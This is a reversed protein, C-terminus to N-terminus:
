PAVVELLEPEPAVPPESRTLVATVALVVLALALEVRIARAVPRAQAQVQRRNVWGLALTGAVLLLKLALLQGYDSVVIAPLPAQAVRLLTSGGGTLLTVPALVTAVPSFLQWRPLAVEHPAHAPLDSWTLALAGLWGGVAAVHMGDLLRALRPWADDAAAHGIGGMAVAVAVATMLAGVARWWPYPIWVGLAAVASALALQGWGMGWSTGGVLEAADALSRDLAHLQAVLLLAPAVLLAVAGAHRLWRGAPPPPWPTPTRTMGDLFALTGHGVAITVGLYLLLTAVYPLM